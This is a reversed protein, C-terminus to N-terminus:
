FPSLIENILLLFSLVKNTNKTRERTERRIKMWKRENEWFGFLSSQSLISSFKIVSHQSDSDLLSLSLPSKSTHIVLVSKNKM